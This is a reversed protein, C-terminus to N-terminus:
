FELVLMNDKLYAKKVNEEKDNYIQKLSLQSYVNEKTLSGKIDRIKFHLFTNELVYEVIDKAKINGNNIKQWIENSLKLEMENGKGKLYSITVM